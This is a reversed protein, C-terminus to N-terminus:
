RTWWGSASNPRGTSAVTSSGPVRVHEGRVQAARGGLQREGLGVQRQEARGVLHAHHEAVQHAAPQQPGAGGAPEPGRALAGVGVQAAAAARGHAQDLPVGPPQQARDVGRRRVALCVGAGDVEVLALAPHDVREVELVGDRQHVAVVRVEGGRGALDGVDRHDLLQAAAGQLADPEREDRDVDGALDHGEQALPQAATLHEALFRQVQRGGAACGRRAAVGHVLGPEGLGRSSGPSTGPAACAASCAAIPSSGSNAVQSRQSM